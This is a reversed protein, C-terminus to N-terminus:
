ALLGNKHDDAGARYAWWDPSQYKYRNHMGFYGDFYALGVRALGIHQHNRAICCTCPKALILDM